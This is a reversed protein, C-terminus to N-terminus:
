FVEDGQPLVAMMSPSNNRATRKSANYPTRTLLIPANKAGKPLVIVTYLKVGDRMTVMAERKVYNYGTLPANFTQPIDGGPGQALGPIAILALLAASYKM